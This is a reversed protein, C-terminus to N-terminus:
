SITEGDSDYMELKKTESTAPAIARCTSDSGETGVATFAAVLKSFMAVASTM